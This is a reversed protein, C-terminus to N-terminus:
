SAIVPEHDIALLDVATGDIFAVLGASRLDM